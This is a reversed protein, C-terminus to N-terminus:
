SRRQVIWTITVREKGVRVCNHQRNLLDGGTLDENTFATAFDNPKSRNQRASITLRFKVSKEDIRGGPSIAYPTCEYIAADFVRSRVTTPRQVDNPVRVGGCKISRVAKRGATHVLCSKADASKHHFPQLHSRKYTLLLRRAPAHDVDAKRGFASM